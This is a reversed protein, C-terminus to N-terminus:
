DTAHNIVLSDAGDVRLRAIYTGPMADAVVFTLRDTVAARSPSPVAQDNLLLLARQEPQVPPRCEVAYTVSGDGPPSAAAAPISLVKPAVVFPLDATRRAGSPGTVLLSLTYVGPGWSLRWRPPVSYPGGPPDNALGDPLTVAVESDTAGL